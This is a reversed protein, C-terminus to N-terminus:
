DLPLKVTFTSGKREESQVEVTGGHGEVLTKVLALGLGIGKAKTTFLPEFLKGINEEPIGMGTDTFSVAVGEPSLVESRIVLQGGDPMSQVANLIINGFVRVLQDPDSPIIPMGEDLQSVVEVNEPVNARSLASGVVENVDVKQWVPAGTRAFGLLSRIIRDSTGVEKKIIDLMEKVEPDPEELVMNLFYVANNIAGLPTRLEHGVGGALQGLVALKERRILQEQTDRLAEEARKREALEWKVQEGLDRLRGVVAGGLMLLVFGMLGRIVVEWGAEGALTVLLASLPFAVLGALLGGSMGFLWGMAVVPLGALATTTPGMLRYLPMFLLGYVVWVGLALAAKSGSMQKMKSM